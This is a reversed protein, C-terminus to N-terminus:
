EAAMPALAAADLLLRGDRVELPYTPVAADEDVARGTTLDFVWNHLPCTVHRGHVIGESLPGGRHPCADAVAYAEEPGTRFVGVCGRPTRVKRAGPLPIADIPGLDIM